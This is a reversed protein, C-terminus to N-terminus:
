DIIEGLLTGGTSNVVRVNVYDGKDLIGNKKFVVVKNESSRGMWDNGSKKSDGEILIRFEKGIDSRNSKESLKRQLDVIETLRRKKTEEPVDDKYRRAALTGPRESYFYM